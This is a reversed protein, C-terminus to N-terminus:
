AMKSRVLTAPFAPAFTTGQLKLKQEHLIKKLGM